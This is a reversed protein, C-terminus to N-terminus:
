RPGLCAEVIAEAADLAELAADPDDHIDPFNDEYCGGFLRALSFNLALDAALTRGEPEPLGLWARAELLDPLCDHHHAESAGLAVFCAERATRYATYFLGLDYAELAAGHIEWPCERGAM